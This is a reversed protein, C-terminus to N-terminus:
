RGVRQSNYEWTQPENSTDVLKTSQNDRESNVSRSGLLWLSVSDRFGELENLEEVGWCIEEGTTLGRGLPDVSGCLELGDRVTEGGHLAVVGRPCSKTCDVVGLGLPILKISRLPLRHSRGSDGDSVFNGRWVCCVWSLSLFNVGSCMWIEFRTVGDDRFDEMANFLPDEPCYLRLRGWIWSFTTLIIPWWSLATRM